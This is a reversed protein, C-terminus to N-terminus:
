CIMDNTDCWTSLANLLLHLDHENDAILVIDDAYLLICVKEDGISIGIDLSKFFNVLNDLFLNFLLSSLICGQRLGGSVNFWDTTLSNVRVCASVSSYLSKVTMLMNGKIGLQHLMSWLKQRNIYDYAQKFDIFATFTSM